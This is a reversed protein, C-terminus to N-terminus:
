RSCPYDQPGAVFKVQTAQVRMTVLLHQFTVRFGTPVFVSEKKQYIFYFVCNHLLLMYEDFTIRVKTPRCCITSRLGSMKSCV